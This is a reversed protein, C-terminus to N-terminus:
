MVVEAAANGGAEKTQMRARSVVMGLAFAAAAFLLLVGVNCAIAVLADAGGSFSVARNVADTYWYGPLFHAIMSVEPTMLDMSVWAGGLFSLVLGVINGAANMVTENIGLQSILFALGLPILAFALTVLALLLKGSMAISAFSEPFCIVGLVMTIAWFTLMIVLCALIVQLNYAVYGIPSALNRRRVDTRNLKTLMLGACVIIGAIYVYIDFQLFFAFKDSSAMQADSRIVSVPTSASAADLALDCCQAISADPYALMCTRVDSLYDSVATEALVGEVSYFSYTCDIRPPEAGSEVASAFEEGFGQPIMVIFSVTGKAVADQLAFTDDAVDVRKGQTELFACLGAAVDGGDRDVVAYDVHYPEYDASSAGIDVSMTMFVGMFSLFVGYVILYVPRRFFLKLGCKFVQM